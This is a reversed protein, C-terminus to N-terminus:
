PVAVKVSYVFTPGCQFSGANSSQTDCGSLDIATDSLATDWYRFDMTFKEVTLSLGVNWYQYEKDTWALQYDIYRQDFSWQSGFTASATPSFIGVQPFAYSSGVELTYVDGARWEANPTYYNTLALTVNKFPSGSAGAKLEFYDAGNAIGRQGPFTYYILGFDYTLPGWVPKVGMYYDVEATGVDGTPCGTAALIPDVGPGCNSNAVGFNPYDVRSLFIGAYAIGYSVDLSGQLAPSRNSNSFGRFIYDSTGGLTLSWNFEREESLAASASISLFLASSCAAGWIKKNLSM